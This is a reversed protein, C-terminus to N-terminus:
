GCVRGTLGRARKARGESPTAIRGQQSFAREFAGRTVRLEDALDSLAPQEPLPLRGPARRERASASLEALAYRLLKADQQSPPPIGHRLSMALATTADLVRELAVVAPWWAAAVTSAPPPEALTQEFATRLDSLLRYARRRLDSRDARGSVVEDLYRAVEDIAAAFREPLRTRWSDPWIAYGLVLVIGCGLLTDLLRARVLEGPHGSLSEILILILPTMFISFLGYNRDLGLPLMAAFLALFPLLPAGNPVWTLVAAGIVVGVATGIARQVARAFVSGFDPKMTIAITLPVWYSRQLSVVASLVEAVVICATLRVMALRATRGPSALRRRAALVTAHLGAPHQRADAVAGAPEASARALASAASRLATQLAGVRSDSAAAPDVSPVDEPAITEGSSIANAMRRVTAVQEGPPRRRARVLATAAEALPGAENLAVVLRRFPLEPGGSRLRTLFITDHAANLVRTLDRRAGEAGPSGVAELEGAIASYVAGVADREPADRRVVWWITILFLAWAGGALVLVPPMWLPPPFIRGAAVITFILLQLAASSATAGLASVVSSFAAVAGVVVVTSSASGRVAGGILFGLAAAV